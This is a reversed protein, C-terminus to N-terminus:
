AARRKTPNPRRVRRLLWERAEDLPGIYMKGGWLLHPLGDPENRYRQVTKSCVGTASAFDGELVFGELFPSSSSM